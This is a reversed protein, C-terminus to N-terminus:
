QSLWNDLSDIIVKELASLSNQASFMHDAGEIAVQTFNGLLEGQTARYANAKMVAPLDESGYIDMVPITLQSIQALNDIDYPRLDASGILIVGNILQMLEQDEALASTTMAAGMSHAVIYIHRYGESSLYEAAAHLRSQALPLLPPYADYEAEMSPVPMQIALTTYGNDPLNARLPHILDAWNPHIGSGHVIIVASGQQKEDGSTAETLLTIFEHEPEAHSTLYVSDGVILMDEINEAHKAERAYDQSNASTFSSLLAYLTITLVSTYKCRHFISLTM